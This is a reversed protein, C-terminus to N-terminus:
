TSKQQEQQLALNEVKSECFNIEKELNTEGTQLEKAEKIADRLLELEDYMLAYKMKDKVADIKQDGTQELFM